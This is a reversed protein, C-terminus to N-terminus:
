PAFFGLGPNDATGTVLGRDLFVNFSECSTEPLLGCAHCAALNMSKPGQGLEGLEMCVPDASCWHARELAAAFALELKGPKGTRVLGGMTGESDGAATYIM